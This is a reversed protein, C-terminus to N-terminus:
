KESARLMIRRDSWLVSSSDRRVVKGHNESAFFSLGVMVDV